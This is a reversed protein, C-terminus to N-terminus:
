VPQVIQLCAGEEVLTTALYAHWTARNIRSSAPCPGAGRELVSWSQPGQPHYRRYRRCLCRCNTQPRTVARCPRSLGQLAGLVTQQNYLGIGGVLLLLLAAIGVLLLLKLRIPMDKLISM